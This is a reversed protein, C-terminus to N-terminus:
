AAQQYRPREITVTYGLAKSNSSTTAARREPNIRSDYFDVGLDHFTAEADSLLHWIVVLV